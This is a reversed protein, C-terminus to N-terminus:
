IRWSNSLIKLGNVMLVASVKMADLAIKLNSKDAADHTHKVLEQLLLVSLFTFATNVCWLRVQAFVNLM